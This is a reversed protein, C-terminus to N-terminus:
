ALRDNYFNRFRESYTEGSIHWAQQFAPTKAWEEFVNMWGKVHPHNWNSELDLDVYVNEILQIFGNCVFFEDRGVGGTAVSALKAFLTADLTRLQPESRVVEM